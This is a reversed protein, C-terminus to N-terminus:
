SISGGKMKVTKEGMLAGYLEKAEVGEEQAKELLATLGKTSVGDKRAKNVLAQAERESLGMEKAKARFEKESEREQANVFKGKGFIGRTVLGKGFRKEPKNIYSSYSEAKEEGKVEATTGTKTEKVETKTEAKEEVKVEVKEEEAKVGERYGGLVAGVTEEKVKLENGESARSYGRNVAIEGVLPQVALFNKNTSELVLKLEVKRDHSPFLDSSCM